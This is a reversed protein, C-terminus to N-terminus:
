SRRHGDNVRLCDDHTAVMYDWEIGNFGMLDM